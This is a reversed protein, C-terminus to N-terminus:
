FGPIIIAIHKDDTVEKHNFFHICEMQFILLVDPTVIGLVLKLIHKTDQFVVTAIKKKTDM